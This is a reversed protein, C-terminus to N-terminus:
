PCKGEGGSEAERGENLLMGPTKCLEASTPAYRAKSRRKAALTKVPRKCEEDTM